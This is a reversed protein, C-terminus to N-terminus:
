TTQNHRSASIGHSWGTPCSPLRCGAPLSWSTSFATTAVAGKLVQLGSGDGILVGRVPFRPRLLCILEALECGYCTQRAPVWVISGLLGIVLPSGPRKPTPMKNPAFLDLDVGDPIFVSNVGRGALLERHHSGRVVVGSAARLAFSELAQTAALGARGRGLARGLEVVADGTDLVFPTGTARKYLAAAIVGSSALDLVYCVDPRVAALARLMASIAGLRGGTRYIMRCDFEERLRSAFSLAREAMASQRGGNVVFAVRSPARM